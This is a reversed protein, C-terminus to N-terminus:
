YQLVEALEKLEENARSIYDKSSYTELSDALTALEKMISKIKLIKEENKM